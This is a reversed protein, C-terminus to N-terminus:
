QQGYIRRAEMVANTCDTDKGQRDLEKARNLAALAQNARDKNVQDGTAGPSTGAQTSAGGQGAAAQATQSTTPQGQQQARVDQPSTAINETAKNMAATAGTDPAQGAKPVQSPTAAVPPETSTQAAMGGPGHGAGQVAGSSPMNMGGAVTKEMQAIQEACPGALSPGVGLTFLASTALLFATTRSM